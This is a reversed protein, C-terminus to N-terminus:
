TLSVYLRYVTYRDALSCFQSCLLMIAFMISRKQHSCILCVWSFHFYHKGKNTIKREYTKQSHAINQIISTPRTILWFFNFMLKPHIRCDISCICNRFHYAIQQNRAMNGAFRSKYDYIYIINSYSDCSQMKIKNTYVFNSPLAMCSSGNSIRVPFIELARRVKSTSSEGRWRTGFM